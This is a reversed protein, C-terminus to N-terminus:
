FENYCNVSEAVRGSSPHWPPYSLCSSMILQDDLHESINVREEDSEYNNVRLDCTGAYITSIPVM